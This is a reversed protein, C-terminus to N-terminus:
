IEYKGRCIIEYIVLCNVITLTDDFLEVDFLIPFVSRKSFNIKKYSNLAMRIKLLHLSCAQMIPYMQKGSLAKKEDHFSVPFLFIHVIMSLRIVVMM